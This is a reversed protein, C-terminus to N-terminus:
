SSKQIVIPGIAREWYGSKERGMSPFASTADTHWTLKRTPRLCVLSSKSLRRLLSSLVRVRGEYAKLQELTDDTSGDNIIIIEHAPRTQALISDLSERLLASRNFTPILVTVDYPQM